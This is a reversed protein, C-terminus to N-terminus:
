KPQAFTSEDHRDVPRLETIELEMFLQGDNKVSVKTASKFGPVLEKYGGFSKEQTVEEKSIPDLARYEAKALMNTAKDFYLKVDRQGPKTVKVGVLTKDGAKSEGLAALKMEKDAKIGFLSTVREIHMSDRAEKMQDGDLDMVEGAVSVWGKDGNVIQVIDLNLGNGSMAIVTKNKGPLQLWTQVKVDFPMDMVHVTGKGKGTATMLKQAVKEDGHAKMGKDVIAQADNDQALLPASLALCLGFSIMTERM